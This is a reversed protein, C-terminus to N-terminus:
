PLAQLGSLHPIIKASKPKQKLDMHNMLIILVERNADIKPTHKTLFAILKYKDNIFSHICFPDRNNARAKKFHVSRFNMLRLSKEENTTHKPIIKNVM